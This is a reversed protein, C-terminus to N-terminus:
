PSAPSKIRVIETIRHGLALGRTEFKTRPRPSPLGPGLHDSERPMSPGPALLEAVSDVVASMQAAYDPWDTVMRLWGGPRLKRTLETVFHVQILRRKHHRLKPWPDPFFVNIGTLSQDPIQFEVVARADHEIIRLNNLRHQELLKLLAGVGPTHVEVGLYNRDPDAAAIEATTGGMGFGIELVTPAVRGFLSGFDLPAESFAVGYIPM